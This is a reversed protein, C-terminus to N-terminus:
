GSIAIAESAAAADLAATASTAGDKGKTADRSSYKLSIRINMIKSGVLKFVLSPSELAIMRSRTYAPKADGKLAEELEMEIHDVCEDLDFPMDSGLGYENAYTRLAKPTLKFIRGGARALIPEEPFNDASPPATPEMRSRMKDRPPRIHKANPNSM